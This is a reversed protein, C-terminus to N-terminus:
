VPLVFDVCLYSPEQQFSVIQPPVINLASKNSISFLEITFMDLWLIRAACPPNQWALRALWLEACFRSISGFCFPGLM